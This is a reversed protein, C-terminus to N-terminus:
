IALFVIQSNSDFGEYATNAVTLMGESYTTSIAGYRINAGTPSYPFVGISLQTETDIFFFPLIGNNTYIGNEITTLDVGCLYRPEFGIDLTISTKGSGNVIIAKGGKFIGGLIDVQNSGLYVAM